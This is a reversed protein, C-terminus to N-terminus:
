EGPNGSIVKGINWLMAARRAADPKEEEKKFDISVTHCGCEMCTIYTTYGEVELLSAGGCLPCDNLEIMEHLEM